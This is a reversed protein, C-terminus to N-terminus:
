LPGKTSHLNVIGIKTIDKWYKMFFTFIKLKKLKERKVILTALNQQLDFKNLDGLTWKPMIQKSSCTDKMKKVTVYDKLFEDKITIKGFFIADYLTQKTATVSNEQFFNM